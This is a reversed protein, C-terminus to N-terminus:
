AGTKVSAEASNVENTIAQDIEWQPLGHTYLSAILGPNILAGGPLEVMENPQQQAFPDGPTDKTFENDQVVTGGVMQAVVAATQPTAFYLPNYGFTLGGPGTGTPDSLWPSSGFVQEATPAGNISASAGSASNPDAAAPAPTTAVAQAAPATQPQATAPTSTATSPASARTGTAASSRLSLVARFDGAEELESRGSTAPATTRGTPAVAHARVQPTPLPAAPRISNLHVAM